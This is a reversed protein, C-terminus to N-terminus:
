ITCGVHLERKASLYAAHAEEPTDFTGLHYHHGCSQIQAMFRRRNKAVGLLPVQSGDKARRQNEANIRRTADRLNSFANNARNTDKHDIEHEPWKGTMYLWALRHAFYLKKDVRILWYGAPMRCGAKDGPKVGAGRRIKWTFLGTDPCYHLLEKLRSQTLM